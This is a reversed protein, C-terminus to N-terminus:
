RRVTPQAPCLAQETMDARIYLDYYGAPQWLVFDDPVYDATGQRALLFPIDTYDNIPPRTEATDRIPRFQTLTRTFGAGFYIYEHTNDINYMLGLRADLPVCAEVTVMSEAVRPDFGMQQQIRTQEWFPKANPRSFPRLESYTTAQFMLYVGVALIGILVINWGRLRRDPFLLGILPMIVVVAALFYRAINLSFPELMSQLAAYTGAIVILSLLLANRRRFAMILGSIVGAVILVFGHLGFWRQSEVGAGVRTVGFEWRQVTRRTQDSNLNLNLVQAIAGVVATRGQHLANSVPAPFGEVDIFLYGYRLTNHALLALRSAGAGVHYNVFGGSGLPNGYHQLNNIYAYSGLIAISLACAISWRFLLGFRRRPASLWLLVAAAALGPLVFFMTSKSGFGLGVSFASIMLAGPSATRVGLLFLYVAM